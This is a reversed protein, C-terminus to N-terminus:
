AHVAEKRGWVVPTPEVGAPMEGLAYGGADMCHFHPEVDDYHVGGMYRTGEKWSWSEFESISYPCGPTVFIGPLGDAAFELLRWMTTVRANVDAKAKRAPVGARRLKLIMDPDHPDCFFKIYPFEHMYRYCADILGADNCRPQYFERLWWYRGNVDEAIVIVVTAAQMGFDIGGAVRVFRTGEAVPRIHKDCFTEYILGGVDVWEGLYEQRGVVSIEARRAMNEFYDKALAPNDEMRMTFVPRTPHFGVGIEGRELAAKAVKLQPGFERSTWHKQSGKPTFTFIAQRHPTDERMRGLAVDYAEERFLGAEDAHLGKLNPGYLNEPEETSRFFFTSEEQGEEGAHITISRETKHYVNGDATLKVLPKGTARLSEKHMTGLRDRYEPLTTMLMHNQYTPALVLYYGPDEFANMM